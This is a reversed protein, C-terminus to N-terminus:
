WHRPRKFKGRRMRWRMPPRPFVGDTRTPMSEQARVATLAEAAGPQTLNALAHRAEPTVTKVMEPTKAALKALNVAKVTAEAPTASPTTRMVITKGTETPIRLVGGHMGGSQALSLTVHPTPGSPEVGIQWGAVRSTDFTEGWLKLKRGIFASPSYRSLRKHLNYLKKGGRFVATARQRTHEVPDLQEPLFNLLRKRGGSKGRPQQETDDGGEPDGGGEEEEDEEGMDYGNLDMYTRPMRARREPRVPMGLKLSPDEIKGNGRVVIAHLRRPGTRYVDAWAEPDEGTVHLEATRWGALDDCDGWGHSLVEDVNRFAENKETKYRVGSLYLAPYKRMSMLQENMAVLGELAAAWLSPASPIRLEAVSHGPMPSEDPDIALRRVPAM